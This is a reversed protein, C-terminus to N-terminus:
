ELDLELITYSHPKLEWTFRSGLGDVKQSRPKVNDPGAPSNMAMPDDHTLVHAVGEPSVATEPLAVEVRLADDRHRNVMSLYLKRRDPDLTASLDLYPLGSLPRRQGLWAPLGPLDLGPEDFRDDTEVWADLAIPGSHRVQMWLPWYVPERWVGDPTVMILGVVNVSQAVNALTVERCHRQMINIFSAVALADRMHYTPEFPRYVPHHSMMGGVPAVNWETIAISLDRCRSNERRAMRIIASLAEIGEEANHPGAMVKHWPDTPSTERWYTHFSIYDVYPGVEPVVERAWESVFREGGGVAVISISRDLRRLVKAWERAQAGYEKPTGHGIEWPGYMENGLQWYKVNYPEERGHKRRINAYTTDLTGNCYEVWAAAEDLTGTGMAFNLHPEAGLRRCFAIFEGTGFEYRAVWGFHLDINKPREDVPGVGDLWHYSTGTCGGPWRIIPPRLDEIFTVVDQRLGHEDATPEDPAYLGGESVGPRRCMFQGYINRDIQGLQRELDIKVRAKM